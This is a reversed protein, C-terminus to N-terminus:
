KSSRMVEFNDLLIDRLPELDLNSVSKTWCLLLNFSFSLPDKIDDNIRECSSSILM